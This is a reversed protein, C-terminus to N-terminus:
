SVPIMKKYYLVAYKVAKYLRILQSPNKILFAKLTKSMLRM